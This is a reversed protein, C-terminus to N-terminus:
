SAFHSTFADRITVATTHPQAAGTTASGCENTGSEVGELWEENFEERHIECINHLVCCASVVTPVDCIDVDLRKLLCRWRGKLRGYCHEVVVRAKSLQYNFQKQEHTLHGSNPYAKMLWPLLPYAPDGLIVVPIDKGAIQEKWDPFLSGNQGRQYLSSNSFVRADHVRGPWGVYVDIFRGRHDVTGQLIISHWGKRNYYDAPCEHPSIIPIHSGDVAGACQPFGLNNRFGNIIERLAAGTPFTIYRPLLTEIIASCVDKTVLCVTSKSVGFLHSITRYDAGTALFWLTLAVRMDSPVAKRMETDRKKISSRLEDCLYMFTCQSMRFNELWDQPAFTSKVVNEWWHSSREKTWIMREPSLKCCTVSMLVVFMLREMAQRRVFAQRRKRREEKMRELRKAARRKRKLVLARVVLAAVRKYDNMTLEYKYMYIELHNSPL